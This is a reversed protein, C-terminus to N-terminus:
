TLLPRVETLQKLYQLKFVRGVNDFVTGGPIFPATFGVVKYAGDVEDFVLSDFPVINPHRPISAVCNLEHWFVNINKHNTYYKFTVHQTEGSM